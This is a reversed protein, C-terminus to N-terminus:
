TGTYICQVYLKIEIGKQCMQQNSHWHVTQVYTYSPMDTQGYGDMYLYMKPENVQQSAQGFRSEKHNVSCNSDDVKACCKSRNSSHIM